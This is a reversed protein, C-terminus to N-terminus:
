ENEQAEKRIEQIRDYIEQLRQNIDLLKQLIQETDEKVVEKNIMNSRSGFM